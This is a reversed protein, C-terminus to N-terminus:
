NLKEPYDFTGPDNIEFLIEEKSRKGSKPQLRHVEDLQHQMHVPLSERDSPKWNRVPVKGAGHREGKFMPTRALASLDNEVKSSSGGRYRITKLDDESLHDWNPQPTNPGFAIFQPGDPVPM